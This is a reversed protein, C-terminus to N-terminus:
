DYLSGIPSTRLLTELKAYATNKHTYSGQLNMGVSLIKNIKHDIKMNTSYIRYNDNDYQGDEGSFNMSMYAKTKESGGSVSLSYNQTVGTKLLEDAWDITEGNM